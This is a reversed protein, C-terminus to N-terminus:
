PHEGETWGDKRLVARIQDSRALALEVTDYNEARDMVNDFYWTVTTQQPGPFITAHAVSRGRTLRWLVAPDTAAPDSVQVNYRGAPQDGPSPPLRHTGRAAEPRAGDTSHAVLRRPPCSRLLVGHTSLIVLLEGAPARDDRSAVEQATADPSDHYAARGTRTLIVDDVACHQQGSAFVGTARLEQAAPRM